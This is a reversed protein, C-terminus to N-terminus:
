SLSSKETNTLIKRTSFAAAEAGSAAEAFTYTGDAITITGEVVSGNGTLQLSSVLTEGGGGGTSSPAAVVPLRIAKYGGGTVADTKYFRYYFTEAEKGTPFKRFGTDIFRQAEDSMHEREVTTSFAYGNLTNSKARMNVYQTEKMDPGWDETLETVGDGLEFIDSAAGGMWKGFDLLSVMNTRDNAM